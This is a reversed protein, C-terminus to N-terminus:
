VAARDLRANIRASLEPGIFPKTVYDDAGAAFVRLLTNRDTHATLFLIPLRSWRADARVVRCLEIGSLRPMDVDLILLDPNAEELATWFRLPDSLTHVALRQPELLARLAGLIQPDDDVALVRRPEAGRPLLRAAADLVEGPGAPKRLFARAGMGILRVRDPLAGRGSLVLVPAGSFADAVERLADGAEADGGAPGLDVVVADPREVGASVRARAADVATRVRM